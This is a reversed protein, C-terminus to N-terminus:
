NGQEKHIQYKEKMSSVSDKKDKSTVRILLLPLIILKMTYMTNEKKNGTWRHIHKETDRNKKCNRKRNMENQNNKLKIEERKRLEEKEREREKEQRKEDQITIDKRKDKNQAENRIRM